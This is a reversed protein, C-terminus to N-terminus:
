SRRRNLCRTLLVGGLVAAGAGALVALGNLRNEAHEVRYMREPLSARPGQAGERLGMQLVQALHLARRGSRQEIQEQCSFGDAIILEDPDAQRVATLLM